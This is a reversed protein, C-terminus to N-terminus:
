GLPFGSIRQVTLLCVVAQCLLWALIVRQSSNHPLSEGRPMWWAAACSVVGPLLFIWLRAAEGSNKGSLWLWSWVILTALCPALLPSSLGRRWARLEVGIGLAAAVFIPFGVAGVLELPNVALWGLYSRPYQRYFGAHNHYNWWYVKWLSVEGWVSLAAMIALFILGAPVITWLSRSLINRWRGARLEPWAECLTVIALWLAVPLFALSCLLGVTWVGGALMATVFNSKRWAHRWLTATLMAFGAFAVDSKPLFVGIAPVLPWAAACLWSTSRDLDFRLFGYLPWVTAAALGLGILGTIWIMARDGATLPPTRWDGNAIAQRREGDIVDFAERVAAPQTDNIASFWEQNHRAIGILGHFFLFLGPPHTGTHLVDGEQMLSEYNRLFERAHPSEFRARFFYGSSSPYYLVFPWRGITAGSTGTGQATVIWVAAVVALGILWGCVEVRRCEPRALRRGGWSVFALYASAVMAGLILNATLDPTADHRGWTWQGPIGLPIDTLWYLALVLASGGLTLGWFWRSPFTPGIRVDKHQTCLEDEAPRNAARIHTFGTLSPLGAM